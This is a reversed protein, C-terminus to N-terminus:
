MVSGRWDKVRIVTSGDIREGLARAAALGVDSFPWGFVRPGCGVLALAQPAVVIARTAAQGTNWDVVAGIPKKLPKPPYVFGLVYQTEGPKKPGVRLAYVEAGRKTGLDGQRIPAADGARSQTRPM